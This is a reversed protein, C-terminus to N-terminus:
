RDRLGFYADAIQDYEQIMFDSADKKMSGGGKNLIKSIKSLIRDLFPM